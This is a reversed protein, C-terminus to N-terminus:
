RILELAASSPFASQDAAAAARRGLCIISKTIINPIKITHFFFIWGWLVKTVM